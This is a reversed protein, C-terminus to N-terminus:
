AWEWRARQTWLCACMREEGCKALPGFPKSLCGLFTGDAFNEGEDRLESTRKPTTDVWAADHDEPFDESGRQSGAYGVLSGRKPAQIV